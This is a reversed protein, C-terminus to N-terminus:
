AGRIKAWQMRFFRLFLAEYCLIALAVAASSLARGEDWGALADFMFWMGVLEAAYGSGLILLTTAVYPYGLHTTRTQISTEWTLADTGLMRNIRGELQAVGRGARQSRAYEGLWILLAAKAIQPLVVLSAVAGVTSPLANTLLAALLLAMAGFTFNMISIRHGISALSEGRLSEYEALMATLALKQNEADISAAPPTPATSRDAM